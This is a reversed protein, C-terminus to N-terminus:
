FHNYHLYQTLSPPLHIQAIGSSMNKPGLSQRITKRCLTHLPRPQKWFASVRAKLAMVLPGMLSANRGLHLFTSLVHERMHGPGLTDAMNQCLLDLTLQYKSLERCSMISKVLWTFASRERLRSSSSPVTHAGHNLLMRTLDLGADGMSVTYTLLTRQHTNIHNVNPSQDLFKSVLPVLSESPILGNFLTRLCSFVSDQDQSETLNLNPQHDLLLEICTFILSFNDKSCGKILHHLATNGQVDQVNIDCGTQRLHLNLTDLITSYDSNLWDSCTSCQSLLSNKPILVNENPVVEAELSGLFSDKRPFGGELCFELLPNSSTLSRDGYLEQLLEPQLLVDTCINSSEDCSHVCNELNCWDKHTSQQNQQRRLAIPYAHGNRRLRPWKGIAVPRNDVDTATPM